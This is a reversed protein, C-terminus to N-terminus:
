NAGKDLAAMEFEEGESILWACGIELSKIQKQM